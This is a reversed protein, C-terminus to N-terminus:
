DENEDDETDPRGRSLVWPRKGQWRRVSEVRVSKPDLWIVHSGNRWLDFRDVVAKPGQCRVRVPVLSVVVSAVTCDEALAGEEKVLAATQGRARYMCGLSDCALRGDDSSGGLPWPAPENLGARRLWTDAHLRAARTSSLLLSGDAARVALLKADEDVLIDPPRVFLGLALGVAIVPIGAMRWPREWLCLWLGGATVVILAAVPMAQITVVAGPWGSATKAVWNLATVGWGMPVLALHELGVPMLVFALLSWPMIWIATLPVGALNAVLSYTAFRNFHYVLLPATACSAVLTTLLIGAVYTTSIRMWRAGKPADGDKPALSALARTGPGEYVAILAMVAAFSLQFSAGLLSEPEILLVLTAAWALTRMSIASRDALVALFVLSVMIFARETAISEGTIAYYAAAGVLAVLAAWKKIPFRLAIPPVLALAARALFFLMGSILVFNFGSVALLHALGSNRMATIVDNSIAAQEGTMLAAAVPGEEGGIGDRVRATVDQRLRSLWLGASTLFAPADAEAPPIEAARGLAFGVGGLGAFYAEREFDYAGPSAPSPPPSLVARVRVWLGPFLVPEHARLNVRIQAPTKEPAIGPIAARDLVLRRGGPRDEVSVVRGTVIVPGIRRELAPAAVELTRIKAASMGLGFLSVLLGAVLLGPGFSSLGARARILGLAALGAGALTVALEPWLPPEAPLGFYLAVGSGIAVPAFLPWRERESVANDKAWEGLRALSAAARWPLFAALATMAAAKGAAGGGHYM